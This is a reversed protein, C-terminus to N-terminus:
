NSGFCHRQAQAAHQRWACLDPSGRFRPLVPPLDARIRNRTYRHDQNSPDDM